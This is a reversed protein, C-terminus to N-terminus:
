LFKRRLQRALTGDSAVKSSVVLMKAVKEVESASAGATPMAEVCDVIADEISFLEDDTLLKSGHMAQLRSQLAALQQEDIVEMAPQPRAALQAQLSEITQRQQEVKAESVQRQQELKGESDGRQQEVKAESEQRQQELKGESEERQRELKGELEQKQQEAKLEQQELKSELHAREERFFSTMEVFSSGASTTGGGGVSSSTTAVTQVSLPAPAQQMSATFSTRAPPTTSPAQITAVTARAALASSRVPAPAPAPALAPAPAPAAAPAASPAPAPAPAPSPEHFPPVAESVMVLKGRGGIERVVSDVRREFAADDDKEADWMAYWMRSGLILGLWGQPKYDQQVMLPVM